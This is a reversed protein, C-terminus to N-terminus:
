GKEIRERFRVNKDFIFKKSRQVRGGALKAKWILLFNKKNICHTENSFNGMTENCSELASQLLSRMCIDKKMENIHAIWLRFFLSFRSKFHEFLKVCGMMRDDCHEVFDILTGGGIDHMFQPDFVWLGHCNRRKRPFTKMFEHFHHLFLNRIQAFDNEQANRLGM